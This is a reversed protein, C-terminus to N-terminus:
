FKSIAKYSNNSLQNYTWFTLPANYPTQEYCTVYKDAVHKGHGVQLRQKCVWRFFKGNQGNGAWVAIDADAGAGCDM